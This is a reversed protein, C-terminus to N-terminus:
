KARLLMEKLQKMLRPSVDNTVSLEMGGVRVVAVPCYGPLPAAVPKEAVPVEVFQQGAMPVLATDKAEAESAQNADQDM